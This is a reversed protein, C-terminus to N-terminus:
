QLEVVRLSYSRNLYKTGNEDFIPYCATKAKSKINSLIFDGFNGWLLFKSKDKYCTYYAEIIYDTLKRGNSCLGFLRNEYEDVLMFLEDSFKDGEERTDKLDFSKIENRETVMITYKRDFERIIKKVNDFLVNDDIQYKGSMLIHHDFEKKEIKWKNRFEVGEVYKTLVNMICNNMLLPMNNYYKRVFDKEEQTKSQKSIINNLSDGYMMNAMMNYNKKHRKYDVMFKQYIYGFFYPKRDGCIKNLEYIRKNEQQAIEKQNETMDDTIEIYNQKRSWEKPPPTFVNGKTADIADGQYRRLLDVRKRLEKYERSDKDFSSLMALFNSALNTIFGIKSDFSKVDINAFNGVSLRQEKSKKKEYTIMPADDDIAEILYQNDSVLLLDMINSKLENSELSPSELESLRGLNYLTFSIAM